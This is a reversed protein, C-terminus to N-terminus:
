VRSYKYLDQIDCIDYKIERPSVESYQSGAGTASSTSIIIQDGPSQGAEEARARWEAEQAAADAGPGAATQALAWGREPLPTAAAAPLPVLQGQKTAPRGAPRQSGGAEVSRGPEAGCPPAAWRRVAEASFWM